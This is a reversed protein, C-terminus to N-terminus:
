SLMRTCWTPMAILKIVEGTHILRQLRCGVCPPLKATSGDSVVVNSLLQDSRGNVVDSPM